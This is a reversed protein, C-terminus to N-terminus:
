KRELRAVWLDSQLDGITFYFRGRRVRFGYRHWPRTPDDFRVVVRPTDSGVAWAIINSASADLYYLWRGDDAWVPFITEGPLQGEGHLIGLSDGDPSTILMKGSPLTCTVARGDPPRWLPQCNGKWWVTPPGWTGDASRTVKRTVATTPFEQNSSIFVSRGDPSWVPTRDDDETRAVPTPAGGGAPMVYAQRRGEDFVHFAIERGDPSYTPWFENTPTRTLPEPEAPGPLPVRYLDANGSRDSDFVLWAGDPSVDFQEIVQNGRTVPTAQSVSGVGRAPIPMTWVNSMEHFEAYGLQGGDPTTTIAMANLGTTLRVPPGAAAGRATLRVAYVDRGGEGDSVILLSGDPGWAPSVNASSDPTVWVPSGGKAPVTAVRSPAVNGFAGVFPLIAQRNGSVCAIRAGTPSWACSHMEPMTVIFRPAGGDVPLALLSDNRIFSIEQGDPSWPGAMVTGSLLLRPTGGLAPVLELGRTSSFSLQRGDPAWHPYGQIGPRDPALAIANGGDVQKVFLRYEAGASYAILEGDPSLAPYVELGPALTAQSRRGVQVAAGAAGSYQSALLAMAGLAAAAGLLVLWRRTGSVTPQVAGVPQTHAPTMGGSPTALPELAAVLEDATQYRDAPRKELCRM